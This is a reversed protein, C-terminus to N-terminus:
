TATRRTSGPRWARLRPDRGPRRRRRVSASGIHLSRTTRGHNLDIVQAEYTGSRPSTARRGPVRGQVGNDPEPRSRTSGTPVDVGFRRATDDGPPSAEPVRWSRWGRVTLERGEPVAEIVGGSVTSLVEGPHDAELKALGAKMEEPLMQWVAAWEVQKAEAETMPGNAM